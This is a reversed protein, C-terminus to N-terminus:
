REHEVDSEGTKNEPRPRGEVDAITSSNLCAAKVHHETIKDREADAVLVDRGTARLATSSSWQMRQWRAGLRGAQGDYQGSGRNQSYTRGSALNRNEAGSDLRRQGVM